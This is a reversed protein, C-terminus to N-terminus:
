EDKLFELVNGSSHGGHTLLPIVAGILATRKVGLLLSAGRRIQHGNSAMFM